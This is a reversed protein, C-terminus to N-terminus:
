PGAVLPDVTAYVVMMWIGGADGSLVAMSKWRRDHAWASLAVMALALVLSAFAIQLRSQAPDM